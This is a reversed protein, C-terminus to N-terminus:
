LERILGHIRKIQFTHFLAKPLKKGNGVTYTCALHVTGDIKKLPMRSTILIRVLPSTPPM